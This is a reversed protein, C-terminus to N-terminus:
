SQFFPLAGLVESWSTIIPRPTFTLIFLVVGALGIRRDVGTAVGDSSLPPHTVGVVFWVLAALVIFGPNIAILVACGVLFVTKVHQNFREGWLGYAIHGGDLQGFPLLNIGTILCGAWGALAVPHLFVDSGSEVTGFVVRQLGWFLLCSGLQSGGFDPPLVRVESLMLGIFAVPLAVVMGAFPGFAAIRMLSRSRMPELQMGIIAGLSGLPPFFPLFVPFTADVGRRRATVYHGMEHAFLIAMFAVAYSLGPIWAEPTRWLSQSSVLPLGDIGRVMRWAYYTGSAQLGAWFM